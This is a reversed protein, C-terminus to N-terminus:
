MISIFCLCKKKRALAPVQMHELDRIIIVYKKQNFVLHYDKDDLVEQSVLLSKGAHQM